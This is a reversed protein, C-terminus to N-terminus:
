FRRRYLITSYWTIRIDTSIRSKDRSGYSYAPLNNPRSVGYVEEWTVKRSFINNPNSGLHSPGALSTVDRYSDRVYKNPMKIKTLEPYKGYGRQLKIDENTGGRFYVMSNPDRNIIGKEFEELESLYGIVNMMRTSHAALPFSFGLTKWMGKLFDSDGRAFWPLHAVEAEQIGVDEMTQGYVATAANSYLNVKNIFDPHKYINEYIIDELDALMNNRFEDSSQYEIIEEPSMDKTLEAVKDALPKLLQKSNNPDVVEALVADQINTYEKSQKFANIGKMLAVNQMMGINESSIDEGVSKLNAKMQAFDKHMGSIIKAYVDFEEQGGPLQAIYSNLYSNLKDASAESDINMAGTFLTLESEPQNPFTISVGDFMTAAEIKVGPM